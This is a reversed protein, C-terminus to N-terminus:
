GVSNRVENGNFSGSGNAELTRPSMLKGTSSTSRRPSYQRSKGPSKYASACRYHSMNEVFKKGTKPCEGAVVTSNPCAASEDSFVRLESHGDAWRYTGVGTQVDCEWAGTYSDGNEFTYTGHGHMMDERWGGSYSRGNGWSYKGFGHKFGFRWQGSYSDGDPWSKIGQVDGCL